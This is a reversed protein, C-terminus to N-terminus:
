LYPDAKGTKETYWERSSFPSEDYFYAFGDFYSGLSTLQTFGTMFQKKYEEKDADYKAVLKAIEGDAQVDVRTGRV